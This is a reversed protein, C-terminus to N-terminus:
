TDGNCAGEKKRRKERWRKVQDDGPEEALKCAIIRSHGSHLGRGNTKEWGKKNREKTGFGLRTNKDLETKLDQLPLLHQCESCGMFRRDMAGEGDDSCRSNVPSTLRPYTRQRRHCARLTMKANGVLCTILDPQSALWEDPTMGVGQFCAVPKPAVRRERHYLSDM